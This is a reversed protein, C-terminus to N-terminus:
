REWLIQNVYQIRKSVKTTNCLSVAIICFSASFPKKEREAINGLYSFFLIKETEMAAITLSVFTKITIM